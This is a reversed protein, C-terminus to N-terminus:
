MFDRNGSGSDRVDGAAVFYELALMTDIVVAVVPVFNPPSSPPPSSGISSPM